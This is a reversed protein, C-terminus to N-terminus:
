YYRSVSRNPRKVYKMATNSFYLASICFFASVLIHTSFLPALDFLTSTAPFMGMVALIGMSIAVCRSWIFSAYASNMCFLGAAGVGILLSKNVINMPVWGMFWAYSNNILLIPLNDNIVGPYILALTAMAIMLFSAVTAFYQVPTKASMPVITVADSHVVDVSTDVPRARQSEPITFESSEFNGLGDELPKNENPNNFQDKM